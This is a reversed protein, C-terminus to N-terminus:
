KFFKAKVQGESNIDVIACKGEGADGPNIVQVGYLKKMGQYEHMHGCLVVKPKYRKIAEGFFKIGTRQGDMPNGKDKIKDFIGYPPYHFIFINNLDNRNTKKLLKFLKTRSLKHRKMKIPIMENEAKFTSKKFYAEIDMYGGWGIFNFKKFGKHSYTIEAINKMSAMFKKVRMDKKSLRLTPHNYWGDDSNGFILMVPKNLKNLEKLIIKCSEFDKRELEKLKKNGFFEKPTLRSKGKKIRKFIDIIYPKWEDVGSVDGVVVLVDFSESHLVKKLREPFKGQFDGVALIKMIGEFMGCSLFSVLNFFYFIFYFNGGMVIMLRTKTMM